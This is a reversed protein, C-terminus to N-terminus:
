LVIKKGDIEFDLDTEGVVPAITATSFDDRYLTIDLAGFPVTVGKEKKITQAVRQALVAGRTHIGLLITSGQSFDFRDMVFRILDQIAQEVRQSSIVEKVKPAEKSNRPM